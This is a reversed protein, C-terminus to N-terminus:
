WFFCTTHGHDNNRSNWNRNEIWEELAVKYFTQSDTTNFFLGNLFFNERRKEERDLKEDDPFNSM